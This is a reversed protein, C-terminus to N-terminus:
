GLCRGQLLALSKKAKFKSRESKKAKTGVREVENWSKLFLGFNLIAFHRGEKIPRFVRNFCIFAFNAESRCFLLFTSWGNRSNM